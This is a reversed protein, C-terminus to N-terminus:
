AGVFEHKIIQELIKCVVAVIVWMKKEETCIKM